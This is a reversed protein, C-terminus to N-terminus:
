KVKGKVITNKLIWEKNRDAIIKLNFFKSLGLKYRIANQRLPISKNSLGMEYAVGYGNNGKVMWYLQELQRPQLTALIGEDITKYDRKPM